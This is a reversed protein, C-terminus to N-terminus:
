LPTDLALSVRLPRLVRPNLIAIVSGVGLNCWREYAGGSGGRYTRKIEGDEEKEERVVADSEFLLLQLLADGSPGSTAKSRPPLACLKLNIYKRPGRRKKWQEKEKREKDDEGKGEGNTNADKAKDNGRLGPKPKVPKRPKVGEDDDDSGVGEKMGSVRVEGREAIVAIVVWDGEVPVDYTAGDRSLRIVSYLLSPSLHYRGSLHEQLSSHPLFRKRGLPNALRDTTYALPVYSLRISSNPELHLWEEEGEPDRGFTRPGPVLNEIFALSDEDRTVGKQDEVELEDFSERDTLPKRQLKPQTRNIFSSSRVTSVQKSVASSSTQIPRRLSALSTSMRSPGAEPVSPLSQLIPKTRSTFIPQAPKPPLAVDEIIREAFLCTNVLTPM